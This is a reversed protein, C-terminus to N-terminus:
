RSKFPILLKLFDFFTINCSETISNKFNFSKKDLSSRSFFCGSNTEGFGVDYQRNLFFCCCFGVHFIIISFAILSSRTNVFTLFHIIYRLIGNILGPRIYPCLVFKIPRYEPPPTSSINPLFFM